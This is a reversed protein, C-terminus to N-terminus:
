GYPGYPGDDTVAKGGVLVVEGLVSGSM